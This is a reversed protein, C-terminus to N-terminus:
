DESHIVAKYGLGRVTLIEVEKVASIKDRLKTISVDVTRPNSESDFGWFEDMLQMRTFTKKPYSIMKFLIQFEKVTLPLEEGEYYAMTEEEKLVLNGAQLQKETAIDARRLLAEVRMVLEVLDIPKVMYDDIGIDYGKKKSAIDDKATMFLIPMKDDFSRVDKKLERITDIGDMQPMMIDSVIMDVKTKEMIDFAQIPNEARKVEFGEEGLKKSVIFNLKTDDEVVLITIM